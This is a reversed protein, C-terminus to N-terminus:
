RAAEGGKDGKSKSRHAARSASRQHDRFNNVYRARTEGKIM